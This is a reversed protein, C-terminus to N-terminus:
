RAPVWADENGPSAPMEPRVAIGAPIWSCHAPGSETCAHGPDAQVDRTRADLVARDRAAVVAMDHDANSLRRLFVLRVHRARRPLRFLREIPRRQQITEDGKTLEASLFRVRVGAGRPEVAYFATEYGLLEDGASITVISGSTQQEAARIRYGGSKLLPTVVRLRWGARLDVYDVGPGAGALLAAPPM